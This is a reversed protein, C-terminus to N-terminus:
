HSPQCKIAQRLKSVSNKLKSPLAAMNRMPKKMPLKNSLRKNIKRQFHIWYSSTAQNKDLLLAYYYAQKADGKEVYAKYISGLAHTPHYNLSIQYWEIAKDINQEVNCDGKLYTTGM